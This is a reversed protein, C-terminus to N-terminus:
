FLDFFYGLMIVVKLHSLSDRWALYRTDGLTMRTRPPGESRAVEVRRYPDSRGEKRGKQSSLDGYTLLAFYEGPASTKRKVGSIASEVQVDSSTRKSGFQSM